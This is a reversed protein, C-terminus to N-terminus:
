KLVEVARLIADIVYEGSRVKIMERRCNEVYIKYELETCNSIASLIDEPTEVVIGLKNERIFDASHAISQIIVPLGVSLYASLKHQWVFETYLQYHNEKENGDWIIGFGNQMNLLSPVDKPALRGFNTVLTSDYNDAGIGYCEENAWPLDSSSLMLPFRFYDRRQNESILETLFGSKESNIVGAYFMEKKFVPERYGSICDYGWPGEQVVYPIDKNFGAKKFQNAMAYSQFIVADYLNVIPISHQKVYEVNECNHVDNMHGIVKVGRQHAQQIFVTEHDYNATFGPSNYVVIDGERLKNLGQLMYDFDINGMRQMGLPLFGYAQMYKCNDVCPKIGADKVQHRLVDWEDVDSIWLTM